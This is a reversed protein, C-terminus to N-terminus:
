VEHLIDKNKFVKVASIKCLCLAFLKNYNLSSMKYSQVRSAYQLLYYNM